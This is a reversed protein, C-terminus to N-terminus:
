FITGLIGPDVPGAVLSPLYFTNGDAQRMVVLSISHVEKSPLNNLQHQTSSEKNITFLSSNCCNVGRSQYYVIYSTATTPAKVFTWELLVRNTSLYTATLNVPAWAEIYFILAIIPHFSYFM